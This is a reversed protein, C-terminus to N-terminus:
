ECENYWRLIGEGYWETKMGRCTQGSVDLIRWKTFNDPHKCKIYTKTLNYKLNCGSTNHFVGAHYRIDFLMIVQMGTVYMSLM